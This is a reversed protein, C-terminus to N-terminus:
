NPYAFLPGSDLSFLIIETYFCGPNRFELSFRENVVSDMLKKVHSIFRSSKVAFVFGDPSSARWNDFEKRPVRHYFFPRFIALSKTMGYRGLDSERYGGAWGRPQAPPPYGREDGM